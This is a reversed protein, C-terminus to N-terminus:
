YDDDPQADELYREVDANMEEVAHPKFLAVIKDLEEKTTRFHKLVEEESIETQSNKKGGRTPVVFTYELDSEKIPTYDEVEAYSYSPLPGGGAGSPYVGPDSWTDWRWDINLTDKDPGYFVLSVYSDLAYEVFSEDWGYSGSFGSDTPDDESMYDEYADQLSQYESETVQPETKKTFIIYANTKYRGEYFNFQFYDDGKSLDKVLKDFAKTFEMKPYNYGYDKFSDKFEVVLEGGKLYRNPANSPTNKGEIYYYDIEPLKTKGKTEISKLGNILFNIEEDTFEADVPNENIDEKLSEEQVLELNLDKLTDELDDFTELMEFEKPIMYFEKGTKTGVVRKIQSDEPVRYLVRGADDGYQESEFLIYENGDSAKGRNVEYWTGYRNELKVNSSLDIM